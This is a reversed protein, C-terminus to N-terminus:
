SAEVKARQAQALVIEADIKANIQDIQHDISALFIYRRETWDFTPEHKEPEQGHNRPRSFM